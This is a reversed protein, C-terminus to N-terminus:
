PVRVHANNRQMRKLLRKSPALVATRLIVHAHAHTALGRLKFISCDNQNQFGCRSRGKLETTVAAVRPGSSRQQAAADRTM